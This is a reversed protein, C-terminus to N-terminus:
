ADEIGSIRGQQLEKLPGGYTQLLTDLLDPRMLLDAGLTSHWELDVSKGRVRWTRLVVAAQGAADYWRLAEGYGPSCLHARYRLAPPPVLVTESGLWDRVLTRKVLQARRAEQVAEAPEVDFWWPGIDGSGFPTAQDPVTGDMRTRVIAAARVARRDAPEHDRDDSRYFRREYMALRVWGGYSPDDDPVRVIEALRDQAEDAPPWDPRPVRSAHLALHMQIDPAVESLVEDEADESWEGQRWLYEHLGLLVDDLVAVFLEGPWPLVKAPPKAEHRRGLALEMRERAHHKFTENDVDPQQMRGAVLDPLEPWMQQLVGMVGGVDGYTALVRGRHSPATQLRLPRSRTVSVSRGSRALLREALLSLSWSDSRAYGHLLDELYLLTATVDAPTELLAQLIVQATSVTVDRALVWALPKGFLDPRQQLVRVFGSLAAVKRPLVPNGIRVLLLTALAEDVSWNVVDEADLPELPGTGASLPLRSEIVAFAEQWARAAIEHEGLESIQEVLHRAIGNFGGLRLKRATEEALTHLALEKNLEMARQLVPAQDRGGFNLWGGGGRSSTFALAHAVAALRAHGAQDLCRALTAIPHAREFSWFPTERVLFHLLRQAQSEDGRQVMETIAYSLPMAVLGDLQDAPLREQSLRRLCALLDVFRASPPFAPRQGAQMESPEKLSVGGQRADLESEVNPGASCPCPLNFQSAFSRLSGVADARYRRPDNDAEACLRAFRERAYEPHSALLRQVPALRDLAIEGGQNQYEVEFLLTEWLADLLLADARDLLHRQVDRQAREAIWSPADPDRLFDRCLLEIARVANVELLARFWANPTNKTERRDTHRLVASLLPQLRVLGSFATRESKKLLAPVSDIVDFLAIDKHFGYGVLFTSAQRWDELARERQGASSHLRAMRMRFEAHSAYYTGGAEEDLIERNLAAVVPASADPNAAHALLLSFFAGATIPGGDERDLRTATGTRAKSICDIAHEWEGRSRVLGLGRALSDEIVRHIPYLDCARPSGHFPRADVTLEAFAANIEYAQGQAAAAEAQAIALVYRLWCRYWGEGTARQRQESVSQAFGSGRALLRASAVWQRLAAASLSHSAGELGIDLTSLAAALAMAQVPPAGREVCQVAEDATAAYQLAATAHRHASGRDKAQEAADALGLLLACAFRRPIVYRKPTESEVRRVMSEVLGPSIEEALLKALARLFVSSIDAGPACLHAHVRRVIRLRQGLRLRGRIVALGLTEEPQLSGGPDFESSRHHDKEPVPLALYEQWPAIAGAKDVHECALLGATRALTPRGDFLLRDAVAAAGFLAEYTQWYEQWSDSTDDFCAALARALETCRLLAPWDLTRAAVDAALLLNREIAEHPHGHLVSDRVFSTSVRQLIEAERGARRMAPLMFRYSKADAFFDRLELWAVVPRFVNALRIGRRQLQLLMFRRFSEHFIRLGGQGTARTLVPSLVALAEPVRDELLTGVIERLEPETVSFDIVGLVDAIAQAQAGASDYLHQYYRAIDGQIVPSASLWELPDAIIGALLGEALGRGLYRAHLPIGETREALLDMIAGRRDEDRLNVTDLAAPVGLTDALGFIEKKSWPDVTHEHLCDGFSQRLPDLHPGPQSGVVLTAGAPLNLTSLREVIDTENDSLGASADVVRAIHDLGDVIVVIANGEEAAEDLFTELESLGAAFVQPPTFSRTKFADSLEGLLNGFFVDTTVRREVLEDGPELFCYHRAVIAGDRQLDEALQTLAWSKGSGPGALVLHVGARAIAGRLRTRLALREQMIARDLPFAQAVRGFDTRLGLRQAVDSPGLTDGNTRAMSAIYIALAAVDEVRREGNPYRGIGVQETQVAGAESSAGEISFPAM